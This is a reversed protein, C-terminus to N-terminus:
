FTVTFVFAVNNVVVVVVVVAAVMAVVIFADVKAFKVVTAVVREVVVFAGVVGGGLVVVIAIVFPRLVVVFDIVVGVLAVIGVTKDADGDFAAVTDIDAVVVVVVVVFGGVIVTGRVTKDVHPVNNGSKASSSSAPQKHSNALMDREHTAPSHTPSPTETRGSWRHRTSFKLLVLNNSSEPESGFPTGAARIPTTPVSMRKTRAIGPSSPGLVYKDNGFPVPERSMPVDIM